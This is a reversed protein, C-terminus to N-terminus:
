KTELKKLLEITSECDGTATHKNSNDIKFYECLFPLNYNKLNIKKKALEITDIYKEVPLVADVYIFRKFLYLIRPIDFLNSNHGVITNVKNEILFNNLDLVVIEVEEGNEIDSMKIGNVAMADDKYSVLEDSDPRLYPKIYRHFSSIENYNEDIVIAAIECVGNKTISFGGTEIDIVARM